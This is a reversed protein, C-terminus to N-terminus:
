DGADKDDKGGGEHPDDRGRESEYEENWGEDQKRYEREEDDEGSIGYERELAENTVPLKEVGLYREANRRVIDNAYEDDVNQYLWRIGEKMRPRRKGPRTGHMDSGIFSVLEEEAMWQALNRTAEKPNLCLDYANVQLLVDMDRIRKALDRDNQIARYREPHALITKIGNDKMKKLRRLITEADETVNGWELFEVMYWDSPMLSWAEHKRIREVIDESCYMEAGFSVKMGPVAERAAESLRNIGIWVDNRDPAYGNEIGYHPTAFVVRVGEEWDLRLLEMAEEMTQAGDDLCPIVHSHIDVAHERYWYGTYGYRRALDYLFRGDVWAAKKVSLYVAAHYLVERDTEYTVARIARDYPLWELSTVESEQNKMEGPMAEAAFFVVQKLVGEKPYYYVDHRFVTDPRVELGTEERIERLATEEETENGEAHGKPISTHGQAMHELLFFLIGERARYVVAGCSKEFEM